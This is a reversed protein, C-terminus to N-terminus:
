DTTVQFRLGYIFKKCYDCWRPSRFHHKEMKHAIKEPEDHKPEVIRELFNRLLNKEVFVGVDRVVTEDEMGLQKALKENVRV